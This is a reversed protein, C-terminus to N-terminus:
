PRRLVPSSNPSFALSTETALGCPGATMDSPKVFDPLRCPAASDMIAFPNQQCEQFSPNKRMPNEGM